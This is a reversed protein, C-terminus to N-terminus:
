EIIKKASHIIKDFDKKNAQYKAFEVLSCLDFCTKAEKFEKKHTVLYRIIEDNTTEKNLKNKYSLYIRLAQGATGYAEKYEKKDFLELSKKILSRAEAKYDFPKEIKKAIIVEQSAQKKKVRMHLYYEFIGLLLLVILFWWYKKTEKKTNTEIKVNQVNDNIIQATIKATENNADLYNLQVDTKNDEQSIDMNQQKFEQQQLQKQYKQFKKSQQLQDLIQQRKEATNEQLNQMKGDQMQGQLSAKEGNQKKYDLKFEGSNNSTPNLDANTMNYGMDLLKQHEKQFDANQAIQKQFEDKMQQQEQLQKQMEQKLASSDQAMQNNELAQQSNQTQQQNNGNMQNIMDQMKQEQAALSDQQQPQQSEQSSSSVSNQQDNKQSNNDVFHILIDNLIVEKTKEVTYSFKLNVSLIAPTNSTGFNLHITRNEKGISLPTTQTNSNSYQFNAQNISKTITYILSGDLTTNYTNTVHLELIANEGTKFYYEKQDLSFTLDKSNTVSNSTPYAMQIYFSVLLVFLLLSVLHYKM